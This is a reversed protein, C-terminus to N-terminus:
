VDLAASFREYECKTIWWALRSLPLVRTQGRWGIGRKLHLDVQGLRWTTRSVNDIPVVLSGVYVRDDTVVLSGLFVFAFFCAGIAVSALAFWMVGTDTTIELLGRWYSPGVLLALGFGGAVMGIIGGILMPFRIYGNLRVRYKACRLRRRAERLALGSVVYMTAVWVIMFMTRRPSNFFLTAVHEEEKLAGGINRVTKYLGVGALIWASLITGVFGYVM